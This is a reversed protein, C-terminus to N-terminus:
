PVISRLVPDDVVELAKTQVRRANEIDEMALLFRILKETKKSFEYDSTGYVNEGAAVKKEYDGKIAAFAAMPDGFYKELIDYAKARAAEMKVINWCSRALEPQDRDLKRFLELSRGSEGLTDNLALVDHFLERDGKGEELLATKRDRTQEMAALAPPYVSGLNRWDSLAFSLRVGYMGMDHELAHDHFWIYRELAEQYKGQQVLERTVTLYQDMDQAHASFALLLIAATLLAKM